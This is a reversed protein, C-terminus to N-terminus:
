KRLGINKELTKEMRQYVDLKMEAIKLHYCAFRQIGQLAM